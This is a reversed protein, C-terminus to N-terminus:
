GCFLYSINKSIEFVAFFAKQLNKKLNISDSMGSVLFITAVITMQQCSKSVNQVRLCSMRKAETQCELPIGLHHENQFFFEASVFFCAFNGVMCLKLAYGLIQLLVNEFKAAETLRM